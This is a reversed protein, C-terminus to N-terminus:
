SQQAAIVRIRYTLLLERGDNTLQKYVVMVESEGKKSYILHPLLYYQGGTKKICGKIEDGIRGNSELENVTWEFRDYRLLKSEEPKCNLEVEGDNASYVKKLCPLYQDGSQGLTRTVGGFCM